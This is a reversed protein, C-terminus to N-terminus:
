KSLHNAHTGLIYDFNNFGNTLCDGNQTKPIMKDEMQTFVSSSTSKKKFQGLGEPRV